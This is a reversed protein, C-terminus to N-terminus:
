PKNTRQHIKYTESRRKQRFRKVRKVINFFYYEFPIAFFGTKIRLLILKRYIRHAFDTTERVKSAEFYYRLIRLHTGALRYNRIHKDYYHDFCKSFNSGAASFANKPLWDTHAYGPFYVSLAVDSEPFALRVKRALKLSKLAEKKREGPFNFLFFFLNETLSYKNISNLVKDIQVKTIDKKMLQLVRDVGSEIGVVFGKCGAAVLKEFTRESLRSLTDIRAACRWVITKDCTVQNTISCLELAETNNRFANDDSFRISNIRHNSLLKQLENVVQNKPKHLLRGKFSPHSMVCFACRGYCGRTTIYQLVGPKVDHKRLYANLDILEFNLPPFLYEPGVFETGTDVIQNKHKFILNHIKDPTRGRGFANLFDCFPKEGPGRIIVDVNENLISHKPYLTPHWGGWVVLTSKCAAKIARSIEEARKLQWPVSYVTFGIIEAEYNLIKELFRHPNTELAEDYVTVEHGLIDVASALYLLGQPIRVETKTGVNILLIRM